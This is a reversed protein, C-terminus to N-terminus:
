YNNNLISLYQIEINETKNALDPFSWLSRLELVPQYRCILKLPKM